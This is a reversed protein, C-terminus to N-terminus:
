NKKAPAKPKEVPAPTVADKAILQGLADVVFGLAKRYNSPVQYKALTLVSRAVTLTARFAGTIKETTGRRLIDPLDPLANNGEAAQVVDCAYVLLAGAFDEAGTTDEDIDELAQGTAALYPVLSDLNFGM